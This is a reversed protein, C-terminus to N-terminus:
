GRIINRTVLILSLIFLIVECLRFVRAAEDFQSLDLKIPVNINLKDYKIATEFCPAQPEAHLVKILRVLDFPVCFPFFEHLDVVMKADKINEAQQEQEPPRTPLPITNDYDPLLENETATAMSESATQRAQEELLREMLQQQTAPDSAPINGAVIGNAVGKAFGTLDDTTIIPLTTLAALIKDLKSSLASFDYGLWTAPKITGQFRNVCASYDGTEYFKKLDNIDTFVPINSINSLASTSIYLTSLDTSSWVNNNKIHFYDGQALLSSYEKTFCYFSARVLNGEDSEIYITPDCFLAMKGDKLSYDLIDSKRFSIVGGSVEYINNVAKKASIYIGGGVQFTPYGVPDFAYDGNFSFEQAGVENKFTKSVEGRNGSVLETIYKGIYYTLASNGILEMNKLNGILDSGASNTPAPTLSNNNGGMIVKLQAKTTNNIDNLASSGATKYYNLVDTLLAYQSLTTSAVTNVNMKFAVQSGYSTEQCFDVFDNYLKEQEEENNAYVDYAQSGTVAYLYTQLMEWTLVNATACIMGNDLITTGEAVTPVPALTTKSLGGSEFAAYAVIGTNELIPFAVLLFVMSLAICKKM